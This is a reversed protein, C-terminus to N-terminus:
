AEKLSGILSGSEAWERPGESGVKACIMLSLALVNRLIILIANEATKSITQKSPLWAAPLHILVLSSLVSM